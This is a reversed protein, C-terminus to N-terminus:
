NLCYFFLLPSNLCQLCFESLIQRPQVSQIKFILISV